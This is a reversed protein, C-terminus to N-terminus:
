QAQRRGAGVWQPQRGRHSAARQSSAGKFQPPRRHKLYPRSSSRVARPGARRGRLCRSPSPRECGRGCAKQLDRGLRPRRTFLGCGGAVLQLTFRGALTGSSFRREFEAVSVTDQGVQGLTMFLHCGQPAPSAPETIEKHGTCLESSLLLLRIDRHAPPPCAM